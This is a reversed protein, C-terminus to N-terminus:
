FVVTVLVTDTYIGSVAAQADVLPIRGYVITTGVSSMGTGAIAVSSTTGAGDGWITGFGSDTFLNYALPIAGFLLARNEQDGSGGPGIEIVTNFGASCRWALTTTADFPLVAVAVGSLDFLMTTETTVDVICVNPVFATVDINQTNQANATGSFAFGIAAIALLRLKLFKM